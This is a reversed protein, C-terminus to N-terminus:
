LLVYDVLLILNSPSGASTLGEVELDWPGTKVSDMNGSMVPIPAGPEDNGASAASRTFKVMDGFAESYGLRVANPDDAPTPQKTHPSLKIKWKRADEPRTPSTTLVVIDTIKIGKASRAFYPLREDIGRMPLVVRSDGRGRLLAYAADPAEQKVDIMVSFPSSSMSAKKVAAEASKKAANRLTEGGDLASYRLHMVVDSISGYDFQRLAAPLKLRWSSIAGAGEFPQYDDNMNFALDFVGTDNQGTSIAVSTIPLKVADGSFRDDSRDGGSSTKEPYDSGSSGASSTRYRHDVLTATCNVSTYPGAVCPVSFSVSHIRRFYHGPFDLDFLLEPLDFEAEGKERLSVLATPNLQRLSINKTMYLVPRGEDKAM